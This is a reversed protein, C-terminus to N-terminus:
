VQLSRKASTLLCKEYDSKLMVAFHCDSKCVISAARPQGSNLAMEGFSMGNNLVAVEQMMEAYKNELRVREDEIIRVIESWTVEGNSSSQKM